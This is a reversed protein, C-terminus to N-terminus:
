IMDKEDALWQPVMVTLGKRKAPEDDPFEIQSKPLWIEETDLIMLVAKETIIKVTGFFELMKGGDGEDYNHAEKIFFDNM